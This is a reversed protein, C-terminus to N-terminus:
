FSLRMTATVNRGPANIGSGFTRYDTDLINEVGAQATLNGTLRYSARLNLTYWAPLGKGKLGLTTAYGINDEGNLNYRSLPKSGNFQTYFDIVLRDFANQYSIGARGYLPAVHDLPMRDNHASALINGYTYTATADATFRPAFKWTLSTTAGCVYARQYNRNAYVRSDEGDYDIHSSGDVTAPALAIADFLYTGFVSMEWSLNGAAIHAVNLDASLTKEPKIDPNPMVVMGPQSDFIKGLDDINPVRYGTALSLAIKWSAVPNYTVGASLSYTANRQVVTGYKEKFIPFFRDDGFTSRLYSYGGRVGSNLRLRPDVTWQHSAFLDINHMANSGDPYRTDLPKVEGTNIDRASATSRLWQLAGDVGAHLRHAGLSRVWDSNLSLIEVRERRSGLWPNDFKRNHRSERIDQWALTLSADYAGFRDTAALSYAALLRQQPGYYWQAFKPKTGKGNLDTLRDYRPIDGTTSFQFNATHTYNDSPRYLVKQMVDWQHYGSGLQMWPRDNPVAVDTGDVHDVTYHRWPYSDDAPMFPNASRGSRLDGFRSYSASTFSAWRERGINFDIHGAVEGAATGYRAFASGGTHTLRPGKTRFAVVGGMADSGYAVSAPGYLVEARDIISPDITIVNQLHGARYILNNLKIGDVVLLVRSSEFGRISPSGGGQQSKQVTLRGDATLADATTPPNSREIQNSSIINVSQPQQLKLGAHRNAVVTVDHLSITDPQGSQSPTATPSAVAAAAGVTALVSTLLAKM